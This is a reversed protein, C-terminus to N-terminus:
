RGSNKLYNIAGVFVEDDIISAGPYLLKGCEISDLGFEVECDSIQSSAAHRVSAFDVATKMGSVSLTGLLLILLIETKRTSRRIMSLVVGLVLLIGGTSYRPQAAILISDWTGDFRGILHIGHFIIGLTIMSDNMFLDSIKRLKFLFRLLLILTLFGFFSAIHVSFRSAPTFPAGISTLIFIMAKLPEAFFVRANAFGGYENVSNVIAIRYSFLTFLIIVLLYLLKTLSLRSFLLEYGTKLIIFGPIIFGFSITLPGLISFILLITGRTLTMEQSAIIYTWIILILCIIWSWSIPMTFNQYQNLNLAILIFSLALILRRDASVMLRIKRILAVLTGAFFFTLIISFTSLRIGITETIFIFIIRTVILSHGNYPQLNITNIGNNVTSFNDFIAWDDVFLYDIKKYFLLRLLQMGVILSFLGLLLETSSIRRRNKNQNM